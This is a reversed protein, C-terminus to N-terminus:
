TLFHTLSPSGKDEINTRHISYKAIISRWLACYQPKFIPVSNTHYLLIDLHYHWETETSTQLKLLM